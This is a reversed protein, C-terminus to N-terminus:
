SFIATTEAIKVIMAMEQYREKRGVRRNDGGRGGGEQKERRGRMRM